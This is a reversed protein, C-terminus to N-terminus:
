LDLRATKEISARYKDAMNRVGHHCSICSQCSQHQQPQCSSCTLRHTEIPSSQLFMRTGVPKLGGLNRWLLFAGFSWVGSELSESRWATGAVQVRKGVTMIGGGEGLPCLVCMAAWCCCVHVCWVVGSWPCCSEAEVMQVRSQSCRAPTRARGQGCNHTPMCGVDM